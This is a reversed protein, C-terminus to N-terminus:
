FNLVKQIFQGPPRIIKMGQGSMIKLPKGNQAGPRGLVKIMKGNLMQGQRIIQGPKLVQGSFTKL